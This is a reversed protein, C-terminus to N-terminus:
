NICPEQAFGDSHIASLFPPSQGDAANFDSYANAAHPEYNVPVPPGSTTTQCNWLVGTWPIGRGTNKAGVPNLTYTAGELDVYYQPWTTEYIQPMGYDYLFGYFVYYFNHASWGHDDAPSDWCSSDACTSFSAGDDIMSTAYFPNSPNPRFYEQTTFGSIWNGAAQPPEANGNFTSETDDGADGALDTGPYGRAEFMSLTDVYNALQTYFDEGNTYQNNANSDGASNTTVALDAQQNQHQHSSYYEPVFCNALDQLAQANTITPGGYTIIQNTGTPAGIQLIILTFANPVSDAERKLQSCNPDTLDSYTVYYSQSLPPSAVAAHASPSGAAAIGASQQQMFSRQLGPQVLPLGQKLESILAARREQPLMWLMKGEAIRRPVGSALYRSISAPDSSRNADYWQKYLAGLPTNPPAPPRAATPHQSWIPAMAANVCQRMPVAGSPACKHLAREIRKAVPSNMSPMTPLSFGSSALAGSPGAVVGVSVLVVTLAARKARSSGMM